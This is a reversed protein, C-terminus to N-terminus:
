FDEDEEDDEYEWEDDECADIRRDILDMDSNDVDEFLDRYTNAMM